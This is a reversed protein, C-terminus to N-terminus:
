WSQTEFIGAANVRLGSNGQQGQSQGWGPNRPRDQANSVKVGNISVVEVNFGFPQSAVINLLIAAVMLTLKLM